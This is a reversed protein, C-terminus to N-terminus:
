VIAPTNEKGHDASTGQIAANVAAVSNMLLLTAEGEALTQGDESIVATAKVTRRKVQLVEGLVRIRRSVPVPSRYRVSLKVTVVTQYGIARCAYIMVEDLLAAIIGGHAIGPWGCFRPDLVTETTACRKEPDLQFSLQLGQANDLGCLFCGADGSNEM